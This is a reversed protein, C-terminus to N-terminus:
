QYKGDFPDRAAFSVFAAGTERTKFLLEERGLDSEQLEPIM